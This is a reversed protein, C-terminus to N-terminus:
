FLFIVAMIPLACLIILAVLILVALSIQKMTGKNSCCCNSALQPQSQVNETNFLEPITVSTDARQITWNVAAEYSPPSTQTHEHDLVAITAPMSGNERNQIEYYTPLDNTTSRQQHHRGINCHMENWVNNLNRQNIDPNHAGM